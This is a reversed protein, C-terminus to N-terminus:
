KLSNIYDTVDASTTTMAPDSGNFTDVRMLITDIDIKTLEALEIVSESTDLGMSNAAKSERIFELKIAIDQRQEDLEVVTQAIQTQMEVLKVTKSRLAEATRRYLLGLKAHTVVNADKNDALLARIEREKSAGQKDKQNALDELRTIESKSTVYRQRLSKIKDILQNAADTYQDEVTTNKSVVTSIKSRVFNLVSKITKM